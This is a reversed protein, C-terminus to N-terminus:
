PTGGEEGRGKWLFFPMCCRRVHTDLRTMTSIGTKKQRMSQTSCFTAAVAGADSFACAGSGQQGTSEREQPESLEAM